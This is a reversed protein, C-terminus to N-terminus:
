RGVLEIGVPKSVEYHTEIIIPFTPPQKAPNTKEGVEATTTKNGKGKTKKIIDLIAFSGQRLDDSPM